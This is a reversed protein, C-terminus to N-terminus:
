TSLRRSTHARRGARMWQRSPFFWQWEWAQGAKPFKRDLETGVVGPADAERDEAHLRRLRERHALLRELLSEPLMTVRDKDGKGHRIHLMGRERDIDGVQLRVGELLRL